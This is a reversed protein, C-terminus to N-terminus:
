MVEIGLMLIDDTQDNSCKWAIHANLIATRQEAMPLESVSLILERLSKALFKRNNEGGLQDVMGDTYIYLKDKKNLQLAYNNFGSFDEDFLDGLHHVDSKYNTIKGNSLCYFSNLAGAYQLLMTQEDYNFVLLDIGDKISLKEEKKHLIANIQENMYDLIESPKTLHLVQVAQNLVNYALLSMFAGPVGHGTCDAVSFIIQNQYRTFWMFDGSVIDKPLFVIFSKEFMQYIQEETPLLAEQIRRAYRISSTIHQSKQEIEHRHIDIEESQTLIEEKQQSIEISYAELYDYQTKIEQNKRTLEETQEILLSNLRSKTRYSMYIIISLILLLLFAIAFAFKQLNSIKREKEYILKENNLKDIESQKKLNDYNQHLELSKRAVNENYFLEDLYRHSTLYRYATKFDNKKEYIKALNYYSRKQYEKDGLQTALELTEDFCVKAENIRNMRLYILGINTTVVMSEKILSLQKRIKLSKQYYNLAVNLDKNICQAYIVGYKNYVDAIGELYGFQNYIALAKQYFIVASDCIANFYYSYGLNVYTKALFLSDNLKQAHKLALKSYFLGKEPMDLYNYFYAIKRYASSQGHNNDFSEYWNLAQFMYKLAENYNANQQFYVSYLEIAKGSLYFNKEMYAQRLIEKSAAIIDADKCTKQVFEFLSDCALECAVVQQMSNIRQLSIQKKNFAESFSLKSLMAIFFILLIAIKKFM